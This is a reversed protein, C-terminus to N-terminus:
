WYDPKNLASVCSSSGSVSNIEGGDLAQCLWGEPRTLELPAKAVEETICQFGVRSYFAPDGYTFVLNVGKERLQGIGYKILKQGVGQGQHSTHVAVPSLIFAEIPSDFSLRTFFVCGIIQAQETAVFGFIDKQETGKMMNLVLNGIQAGESKGESDSFVKTFLEYIEVEDSNKYPSLDM